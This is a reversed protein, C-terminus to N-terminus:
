EEEILRVLKDFQEALKGQKFMFRALPRTLWHPLPMTLKIYVNVRTEELHVELHRSHIMIPYAFTYYEFPHWDLITEIFM